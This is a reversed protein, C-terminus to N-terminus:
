CEGASAALADGLGLRQWMADVRQVVCPDMALVRGRERDTESGIKTTADIGLKGGLGAVPSAFDLYDIPTRDIVMLDRSPDMRTALAWSIDRWSRVDVDDDVVVIVKTYTFQAMMSWLAMMVRRAHGPYRKRISVIAMRYSCADPPLWCDAVEPLQRRLIPIFLENLAEGIISPEDPPRGTYTSLYIPDARSTIATVRLLPFREVSNYYGTHDGFPGEPVTEHSSILGEIVIEADAPVMLPVSVCRALRAREGRLIGSFRLESITEPLPLVASLITAPDTGVVVAVPMDRGQAAWLRHHAAGGRHALWRVVAQGPGLVQMRYIGMNYHSVAEDDPPRTLVLPWTILPGPEGSWCTQIPLRDLDIEPGTCVRQQVVPRSVSAPAMSLAAKIVPWRKLADRIGDIPEPERLAALLEGLGRIGHPEVGLGWSVRELTGFLNVLVPVDSATGDARLPREFLLAPGRRELVRRHVETMEHVVSVPDKVRVLARNRDLHSLFARL